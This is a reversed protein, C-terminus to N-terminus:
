TKKVKDITFEGNPLLKIKGLKFKYRDSENIEEVMKDLAKAEKAEVM